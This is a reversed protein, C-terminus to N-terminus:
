RGAVAHLMRAIAQGGIRGLTALYAREDDSFVRNDAFALLLVGHAVDGAVLPAAVFAGDSTGNESFRGLSSYRGLREARSEIVVPDLTRAAEAFPEVLNSPVLSGAALRPVTEGATRLVTFSGGDRAAVIGLSAVLPPAGRTLLAQAVDAGTVPGNLAAIVQQLRVLRDGAHRAEESLTLHLEPISPTTSMSLRQTLRQAVSPRLPQLAILALVLAFISAAFIFNSAARGKSTMNRTREGLVRLEVDRMQNALAGAGDRSRLPKLKKQLKIASDPGSRQRTLIIGRLERFRRAVMPALKDLNNRQDPNDETAARLSDLAYEVDNQADTLPELYASDGTTVYGRQANEADVTRSVVRDFRAINSNTAAVAQEGGIMQTLSVYSVLGALALLGLATGTGISLKQVPTFAM